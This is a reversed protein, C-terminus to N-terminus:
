RRGMNVFNTGNDIDEWILQVLVVFSNIESRVLMNYFDERIIQVLVWLVTVKLHSCFIM